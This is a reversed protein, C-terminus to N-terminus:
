QQLKKLKREIYWIAKKLDEIQKEKDDMGSEKKKGCRWLYKIANGTCFDFDEIVDICEIGSANNQYYTPHDVRPTSVSESHTESQNITIESLEILYPSLEGMLGAVNDDIDVERPTLIWNDVVRIVEDPKAIVVNNHSFNEQGTYKYYKMM